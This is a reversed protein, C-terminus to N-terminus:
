AQLRVGWRIWMVKRVGNIRGAYWHQIRAYGIAAQDVQGSGSSVDIEIHGPEGTALVEIRLVVTVGEGPLLAAQRIYPAIDADGPGQLTPAAMGSGNNRAVEADIAPHDIHLLPLQMLSRYSIRSLDPGPLTLDDRIKPRIFVTVLRQDDRLNPARHSIARSIIQVAMLHVAGVIILAFVRHVCKRFQKAQDVHTREIV